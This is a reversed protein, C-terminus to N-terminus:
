PKLCTMTHLDSNVRRQTIAWLYLGTFHMDKKQGQALLSKGKLMVGANHM